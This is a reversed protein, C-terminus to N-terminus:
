DRADTPASLDRPATSMCSWVVDCVCRVQLLEDTCVQGPAYESCSTSSNGPCGQIAAMDPTSTSSQDSCAFLLLAVVVAIRM